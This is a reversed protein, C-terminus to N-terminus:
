PQVEIENSLAVEPKGRVRTILMASVGGAELLPEWDRSHFSRFRVATEANLDFLGNTAAADQLLVYKVWPYLSEDVRAGKLKLYPKADKPFPCKMAGSVTVGRTPALKVDATLSVRHDETLQVRPNALSFKAERLEFSNKESQWVVSGSEDIQRASVTFVHDWAVDIEVERLKVVLEELSIFDFKVESPDMDYVLLDMSAQLKEDKLTIYGHTTVTLKKFRVFASLNAGMCSASATEFTDRGDLGLTFLPSEGPLPARSPNGPLRRLTSASSAEFESSPLNMAGQFNCGVGACAVFMLWVTYRPM